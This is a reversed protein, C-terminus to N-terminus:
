SVVECKSSLGGNSKCTDTGSGGNLDDIGNGGTLIDNHSGGRITDDGFGGDITDRGAGGAIEDNGGGGDIVDHHQSGWLIDGGTGGDITDNGQGGKVFDAGWGGYLTDQGYHGEVTDDHGGGYITDAGGNGLLRDRDDGGDIIDNGSGGTITDDGDRGCVRDDGNGANITDHDSTGMIVDTLGTPEDGWGIFVPNYSGPLNDLADCPTNEIITRKIWDINTDVRTIRVAARERACGPARELAVASSVGELINGGRVTPGGSDGSCAGQNGPFASFTFWREHSVDEFRGSATRAIGDPAQNNSPRGYGYIDAGLGFPVQIQAPILTDFDVPTGLRLLALDTTTNTTDQRNVVDGFVITRRSGDFFTATVRRVPVYDRDDDDFCHASSIIWEPDILSGTCSGSPDGGGEILVLWEPVTGTADPHTGLEDGNEIAGAASMTTALMAAIAFIAIAFKPIRM